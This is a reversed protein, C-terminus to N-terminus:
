DLNNKTNNYAWNQQFAIRIMCASSKCNDWKRPIRNKPISYIVFKLFTSTMWGTDNWIKTATVFDSRSLQACASFIYLGSSTRLAFRCEPVQVSM